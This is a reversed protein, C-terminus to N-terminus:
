NKQNQTVKIKYSSEPNQLIVLVYWWEVKFLEDAGLMQVETTTHEECYCLTILRCKPTRETVVFGGQETGEASPCLAQGPLASEQMEWHPM